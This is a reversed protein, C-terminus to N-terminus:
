IIWEKRKPYRYYKPKQYGLTFILGIRRDTSVGVKKRLGKTMLAVEAFGIMCSGIGRSHATLMMNQGALACDTRGFRKGKAPYTLIVVTPAGFFFVDYSGKLTNIIREHYDELLEKRAYRRLRLMTLIIRGFPNLGFNVVKLLVKSITKSADKVDQGHLIVANVNQSNTATATTRGSLIIAKLDNEQIPKPHYHRVSRKTNIFHEFVDPAEPYDELKEGDVRIAGVPCVMGCHSCEICNSHAIEAIKSSEEIKIVGPPCENACIGCYTCEYKNITFVM